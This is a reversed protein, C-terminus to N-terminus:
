RNSTIEIGMQRAMDEISTGRSVRIGNAMNRLQDPSKSSLLHKMKQIYASENDLLNLIISPDKGARMLALIQITANEVRIM